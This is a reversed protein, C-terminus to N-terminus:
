KEREDSIVKEVIKMVEEPEGVQPIMNEVLFLKILQEVRPLATKEGQMSLIDSNMKNAIQTLQENSLNM